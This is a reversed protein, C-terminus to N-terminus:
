RCSKKVNHKLHLYYNSDMQEPFLEVITAFESTIFPDVLQETNM